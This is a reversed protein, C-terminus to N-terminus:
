QHKLDVSGTLTFQAEEPVTATFSTKQTKISGYVSVIALSAVLLLIASKIM